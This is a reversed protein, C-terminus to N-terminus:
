WLTHTEQLDLIVQKARPRVKALAHHLVQPIGAARPKRRALNGGNITFTYM